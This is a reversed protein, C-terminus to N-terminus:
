IADKEGIEFPMWKHITSGFIQGGYGPRDYVVKIIKWQVEVPLSGDLSVNPSAVGMELDPRAKMSLSIQEYDVGRELARVRRVDETIFLQVIIFGMERLVASQAEGRTEAYVVDREPKYRLWEKLTHKIFKATNPGGNFGREDGFQQLSQRHVEKHAYVEEVTLVHRDGRTNWSDVYLGVLTRSHEAVMFGQETRLYEALTTKGSLPSGNLAIKYTM